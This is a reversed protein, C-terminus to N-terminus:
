AGGTKCETEREAKRRQIERDLYWRAKELDEIEREPDKKGARSVYKVTNGLCFGLSWAEIVKIAEYPNDKGGYHSPHDVREVSVDEPGVAPEPAAQVLRQMTGRTHLFATEVRNVVEDFLYGIVEHIDAYEESLSAIQKAHAAGWEVFDVTDVMGRCGNLIQTLKPLMKDVYRVLRAEPDIQAEYREMIAPINSFKTGGLNRRIREAADREAREKDKHQEGTLGLMTDVDGCYVEPLDHVLAYEYVRRVDMGAFFRGALSASALALMVSHEAVTEPKVADPHRTARNTRGTALAIDALNLLFDYDNM